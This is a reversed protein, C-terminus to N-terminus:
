KSSFSNGHLATHLLVSLLQTFRSNTSWLLEEPPSFWPQHQLVLLHLSWQSWSTYLTHQILVSFVAPCCLYRRLLVLSSQINHPLLFSDAADDLLCTKRRPCPAASYNVEELDSCTVGRLHNWHSSLLVFAKLSVFCFDERFRPIFLKLHRLSEM